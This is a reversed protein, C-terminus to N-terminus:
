RSGPHGAARSHHSEAVTRERGSDAWDPCAVLDEPTDLDFALEPRRCVEIRWGRGSAAALHKECSGEGFQFDFAASARLLLANTGSGHRDPAIVMYADAAAQFMAGLADATL